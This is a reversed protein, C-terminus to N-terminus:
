AIILLEGPVRELLLDDIQVSHQTTVKGVIAYGTVQTGQLFHM